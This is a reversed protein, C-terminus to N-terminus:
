KAPLTEVFEIAKEIWSALQRDTDLGEPDIVVWGKMPRRPAGFQSVFTKKLAKAAAEEGLRALLSDGRVGVLINRRMLFCIGGFMRQEAVDTRGALADRTRAALIESFPM